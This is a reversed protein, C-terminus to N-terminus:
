EIKLINFDYILKDKSDLVVVSSGEAQKIGQLGTWRSCDDDYCVIKLFKKPISFSNLDSEIEFIDYNSALRKINKFPLDKTVLGDLQIITFEPLYYMVPRIYDPEGILIMTNKSDFNDRIFNIKAEMKIDNKRIESYHFSTPVYPDSLDPDRDRFFLGLNFVALFAVVTILVFKNKSLLVKISLASLLLIPVSYNLQYGAHDSRIFLNFLLPPSIWLSFFVVNKQVAEKKLYKKIKSFIYTIFILPFIFSLGLTLVIGKILTNKIEWFYLLNIEPINSGYSPFSYTVYKGIGGVVLILPIFWFLCTSIFSIVVKMKENSRLTIFSALALPWSFIFDQPRFGILIAYSIGILLGNQKKLVIAHYSVLAFILYFFVEVGYSYATLGFFYVVPSTLYLISGILGTKFGGLIKGFVFIVVAALAGFLVSEILLSYHPDSFIAYFIKAIGIYIPYGPAAPTQDELSYRFQAISYQPGDWHSQFQEVLFIRTLFGTLFILIVLGTDRKNLMRM